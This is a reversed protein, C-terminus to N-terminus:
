YVGFYDVYLSSGFEFLIPDRRCDNGGRCLLAVCDHLGTGLRRLDRVFRDRVHLELHLSNDHRLRLDLQSNHPVLNINIETTKEGTLKM